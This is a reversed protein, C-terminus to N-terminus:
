FLFFPFGEHFLKLIVKFDSRPNNRRILFARNADGGTVFMRFERRRVPDLDAEKWHATEERIAGGRLRDASFAAINGDFSLSARKKDFRVKGSLLFM